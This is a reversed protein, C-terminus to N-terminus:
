LLWSACSPSSNQDGFRVEFGVRLWGLSCSTRELISGVVVGTVSSVLVWCPSRAPCRGPAQQRCQWWGKAGVQLESSSVFSLSPPAPDLTVCCIFSLRLVWAVERTVPGLESVVFCHFGSFAGPIEPTRKVWHLGHTLGLGIRWM